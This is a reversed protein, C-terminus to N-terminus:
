SVVGRWGWPRPGRQGMICALRHDAEAQLGPDQVAMQAAFTVKRLERIDRLTEYGAWSTVDYGYHACVTQWDDYCIDGFTFHDVAISVLDWEPPGLAFRELDLVVPGTDTAVINSGWADGHVACVPRGPPLTAYREQLQHLHEHLWSREGETFASSNIRAELRIFPEIVPLDFDPPPLSHLRVLTSAVEAPSGPRHAPLRRWFTVPRGDVDVPQDVGPLADVAPIGASSLWRSVRVEKAAALHQGPRGVRAVIGGPLAIMTNEASRLVYAGDVGVGVSTGARRALAVAESSM